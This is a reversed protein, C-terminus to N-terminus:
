QAESLHMFGVAYWDLLAAISVAAFLAVVTVAMLAPLRPPKVTAFAPDASQIVSLDSVAMSKAVVANFYNSQLAGYITEAAKARRQLAALESIDQPYLRLRNLLSAEQSRLMRLQASDGAIQAQLTAAQTTFGATLPNPEENRSALKTSPIGKLASELSAIQKETAVVEPYKETFQQRLMRLQVRQQALQQEIQDAVPSSSILKSADITGPLPPSTRM